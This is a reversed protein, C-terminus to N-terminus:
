RLARLANLIVAIDIGEQLLAGAVPPLYGLAAVAMGVVSLCLGAVVSQSAIRRTRHAVEVAFALSDIRDVLLVIGASESSAASGRAGLAVGVDASALAPADNVGDGAMLVPARTRERRVVEVKQAPDLEGDAKAIGLRAAVADVVDQRDGSAIVVRDIGAKELARLMTPAEPRIADAMAIIGALVGDVGVAVVACGDPLGDRLAYPDDGATIADRVFRSGGVVLRHGEVTGSIGTGAVESVETPTSLSVGKRRADAVLAAATVHGSAQDLSATLRLIEDPSWNGVTRVEVVAAQGFTLTGTKDLIVTKVKALTELAGGDKILVGGRAARSMGSIIAVPLALILPCPTAVVLVALVRVPDGSIGWAVGAAALTLVLFWIAYRDAARVSPPRSEQAKSVLRVINAYTSEAAPRDAVLDFADGANTSGSLVEEGLRKTRPLSEGTLASDDLVAAPSALSGDVPIVEGRRVLLRDGPVLAQILVEDLGDAGYRMASHAVRGLLATMERRARGAAYSELFQGGAYMLAVVNGALMEGFALAASMSLAAVLDLGIDGQSLSRFIEVILAALVFATAVAWPWSYWEARSAWGFAGIALGGLAVGVLAGRFSVIQQQENPLSAM